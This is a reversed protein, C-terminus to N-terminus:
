LSYLDRHYSGPPRSMRMESKIGLRHFHSLTRVSNDEYAPALLDKWTLMISILMALAIIMKGMIVMGKEDTDKKIYKKYIDM